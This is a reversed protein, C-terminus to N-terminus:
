CTSLSRTEELIYDISRSIVSESTYFHPSLRLGGGRYACVLGRGMLRKILKEPDVRTPVLTLIGLHRDKSEPTPTTFDGTATLGQRLRRVNEHIRQEIVDPGVELILDISGKLAQIGLQNPSGCEFRKADQSPEWQRVDYQGRARVMHWGYQHLQLTDQLPQRCYFLALGEPGLMWKHGDAMLFDVASSRVDIPCAGVSQIADLCFLVGKARLAPGLRDPQIRLGSGYQVSSISLLRTKPTVASLLAQEPSDASDLDVEIVRADFRQAAAEWVIRNSPFEQTSIIIEDQPKWDVGMGVISLAESTSKALGIESVSEANILQRLNERLHKETNLWNPYNRAGQMCNERAFAEVADAARKPWPAVAAHNLYLLDDKQPFQEAILQDLSEPM